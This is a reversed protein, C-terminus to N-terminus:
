KLFIWCVDFFCAWSVLLCLTLRFLCLFRYHCCRNYLSILVFPVAHFIFCIISIWLIYNLSEVCEIIFIIFLHFHGCFNCNDQRYSKVTDVPPSKQRRSIVKAFLKSGSCSRWFTPGSRSGFQKDSQYHEQFFKEFFNIKFFYLLCSYFSPFNGLMFLSLSDIVVTSSLYTCVNKMQLSFLTSGWWFQFSTPLSISNRYFARQYSCSVNKGNHTLSFITKNSLYLLM